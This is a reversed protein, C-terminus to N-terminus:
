VYMTERLIVDKMFPKLANVTVVDVDRELLLKLQDELEIIKYLSIPRSLEVLIDVDSEPTAEGRAVSGFVGLRRLPFASRLQPMGNALLIQVTDLDNAM